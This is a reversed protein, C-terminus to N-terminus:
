PRLGRGVEVWAVDVAYVGVAILTWAVQDTDWLVLQAENVADDQILLFPVFSGRATRHWSLIQALGTAGTIITGATRESRTGRSYGLQVGADTLRNITPHIESTKRNRQFSAPVGASVGALPRKTSSVRVDGISLLTSQGSVIAISLYRYGGVSYGAVGTLDVWPQGPFGDEGVTPITVTASVSPSGWSNAANMQVRIVAGADFNTHFFPVLDVRKASAMDLTIRTPNVSYIVPNWPKADDINTLPYVANVTGDSSWTGTQRDTPLDYLFGM